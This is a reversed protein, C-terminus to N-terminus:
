HRWTIHYRPSPYAYSPLDSPRAEVAYTVSGAAARTITFEHTMQTTELEQLLNKAGGNGISLLRYQHRGPEGNRIEAVVRVQDGVRPNENSFKLSIWPQNSVATVRVPVVEDIVNDANDEIDRKDKVRLQLDFQTPGHLRLNGLTGNEAVVLQVGNGVFDTPAPIVNFNDSGNGVLEYHLQDHDTGYVPIPDGVKTGGPSLYDVTRHHGFHPQANVHLDGVQFVYRHPVSTVTKDVADLKKWTGRDADIWNAPKNQRVHGKLHVELVYTGPKTFVWELHEYEGAGLPMANTDVDSSDWVLGSGLDPEWYTLVHPLDSPNPGVVRVSELEYGFAPLHNGDDDTKPNEWYDDSLQGTSFGMVLDSPPLNRATDELRLWHVQTGPPVPDNEGLGLAERVKRYKELSLKTTGAEADTAVVDELYQDGVQIITTRLDIDTKSLDTVEETGESTTVDRHQAAPPCLNNNLTGTEVEDGLGAPQWYADFMAYHGKNVVALPNEPFNDQEPGCLPPSVAPAPTDGDGRQAWAPGTAFTVALLTILLASLAVGAAYLKFRNPANAITNM